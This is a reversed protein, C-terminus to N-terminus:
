VGSREEMMMKENTDALSRNPQRQGRLVVCKCLTLIPKHPQTQRLEKSSKSMDDVGRCMSILLFVPICILPILFLFVGLAKYAISPMYDYIRYTTTQLTRYMLTVGCLFPVVFLWCYKLVPNPKYGIMDEINNIFRDAGYVWAIVVAEFCAIIFFTTDSPGYTDVVHFLAIGGESIFPLGLLFLVVVLVLVLIERAHPRRLYRPFMDTIATALSDVRVFQTDLSLFFIMLFFLVAWFGSGPLLALVQPLSVFVLHPGMSVVEYIPMATVHALFGLLSFVVFGCIISTAANLCCLAMCDRYCNNNYKNYSGLSTLVGQCLAYSYLVQNAADFWMLPHALERFDPMLYYKLGESAGPLTVGRIFIIFLLLYPFTATFYVVKGMSKIGKFICFYCIIWILLLCLALDWRPETLSMDDSMRLVRNTWFEQESTKNALFPDVLELESSDYYDSTTVNNLFSWDSDGQPNAYNSVASRCSVTNWVNACTSWPLPSRFSNILYFLVWAVIVMSYINLYIVIVQSAIGVGEFMPCIKRWATVGGESTYQGLATELFFLPFGCFLLFVFYPIFFVAGGNKFCLYPFRWFNSLDIIKGSMALIFEWKNAWKGRPHHVGHEPIGKDLEPDRVPAGGAAEASM